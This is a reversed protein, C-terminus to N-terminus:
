KFDRRDSITLKDCPILKKKILYRVCQKVSNYNSNIKDSAFIALPMPKNLRKVEKEIEELLKIKDRKM